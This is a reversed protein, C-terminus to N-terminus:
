KAKARGIWEAEHCVAEINHGVSDLVYAGFYDKHYELYIKPKGNDRGGAALAAKHFPMTLARNVVRYTVHNPPMTLPGQSIFFEFSDASLAVARTNSTSSTFQPNAKYCLPPRAKQYFVKSLKLNSANIPVRVLM